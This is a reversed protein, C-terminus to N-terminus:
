YEWNLDPIGDSEAQYHYSMKADRFPYFKNVM